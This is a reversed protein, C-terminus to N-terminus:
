PVKTYAQGALGVRSMDMLVQMMDLMNAIEFDSFSQIRLGGRANM